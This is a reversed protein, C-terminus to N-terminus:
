IKIEKESFFLLIIIVFYVCIKLNTSKVFRKENIKLIKRKREEIVKNFWEDDIKEFIMMNNLLLLTMM